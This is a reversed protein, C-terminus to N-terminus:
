KAVSFVLILALMFKKYSVPVIEQVFGALIGALGVLKDLFVAAALLVFSYVLLVQGTNFYNLLVIIGYYINTKLIPEHECMQFCLLVLLLINRQVVWHTYYIKPLLNAQNLFDPYCDLEKLKQFDWITSDIMFRYLAYFLISYKESKDYNYYIFQEPYVMLHQSPCIRLLM